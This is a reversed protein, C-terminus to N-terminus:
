PWALVVVIKVSQLAWWWKVNECPHNTFNFGQENKPSRRKMQLQHHHSALFFTQIAVFFHLWTRWSYFINLLFWKSGKRNSVCLHVREFRRSFLNVEIIAVCVCNSLKNKWNYLASSFRLILVNWIWLLSLIERMFSKFDWIDIYNM